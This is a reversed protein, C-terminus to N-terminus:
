TPSFYKELTTHKGKVKVRPYWYDYHTKPDDWYSVYEGKGPPNKRHLTDLRYSWMDYKWTGEAHKMLGHEINDKTTKVKHCIHCLYQLNETIDRGGRSLPKIHDRELKDKSGCRVCQEQSGIKIKRDRIPAHGSPSKRM